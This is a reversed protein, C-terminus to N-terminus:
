RRSLTSFNSDITTVTAASDRSGATPSDANTQGCIEEKINKSYLLPFSRVLGCANGRLQNKEQLMRNDFQVALVSCLM